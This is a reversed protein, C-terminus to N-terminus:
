WRSPDGQVTTLPATATRCPMTTTTAAPPSSPATAAAPGGWARDRNPDPGVEWGM